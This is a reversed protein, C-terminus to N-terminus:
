SRNDRKENNKRRQKEKRRETKRSVLGHIGCGRKSERLFQRLETKDMKRKHSPKITKKEEKDKNVKFLKKRKKAM